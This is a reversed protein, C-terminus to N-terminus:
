ASFLDQITSALLGIRQLYSAETWKRELRSPDTPCAIPGLGWGGETRSPMRWLTCDTEALLRFLSRCSQIM